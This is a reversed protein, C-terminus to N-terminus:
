PSAMKGDVHDMVPPGCTTRNDFIAEYCATVVVFFNLGPPEFGRVGM